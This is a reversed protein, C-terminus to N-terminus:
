KPKNYRDWRKKFAGKSLPKNGPMILCDEGGRGKGTSINNEEPQNSCLEVWAQSKTPLRKKIDFYSRAMDDIVRAWAEEGKPTGPLLGSYKFENANSNKGVGPEHNKLKSGGSINEAKPDPLSTLMREIARGAAERRHSDRRIPKAQKEAEHERLAELIIKKDREKNAAIIPKFPELPKADTFGEGLQLFGDMRPVLWAMKATQLALKHLATGEQFMAATKVWNEPITIKM